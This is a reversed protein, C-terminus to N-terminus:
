YRGSLVVKRHVVTGDLVVRFHYIGNAIRQNGANSGDWNYTYTGAQLENKHLLSKVPQGLQNLVDVQVETQQSLHIEITINDKFPNPYCRIVGQEMGEIEPLGTVAYAELSLLTSEHKVFRDTGQIVEGELEYEKNQGSQWLRLTFPNGEKFGLM